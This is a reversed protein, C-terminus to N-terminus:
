QSATKMEREVELWLSQEYKWKGEKDFGDVGSKHIFLSCEFITM